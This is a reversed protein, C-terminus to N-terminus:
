KNKAKKMTKDNNSNNKDLTLDKNTKNQKTTTPMTSKNIEEKNKTSKDEIINTNIDISPKEISNNKNKSKINPTENKASSPILDNTNVKENNAIIDIKKNNDSSLNLKINLNNSDMIKKFNSIDITRDNNSKINISIIKKDTIYKENIIKENQAEKVLLELGVDISKNNLNINSLLTAGESDPSNSGIIKNWRNAKLHVSPNISVVISTVPTYYAYALTSSIFLFMLSAATIAYKYLSLPKRCIQGTHIEGIKPLVKNTKIYLFEGSSTMVGVKSRMINIVIGTKIM